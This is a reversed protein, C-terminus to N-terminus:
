IIVTKPRWGETQGQERIGAIGQQIDSGEVTTAIETTEEIQTWQM